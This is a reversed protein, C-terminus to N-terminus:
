LKQVLKTVQYEITIINETSITVKLYGQGGLCGQKVSPQDLPLRRGDVMGGALHVHLVERKILLSTDHLKTAPCIIPKLYTM